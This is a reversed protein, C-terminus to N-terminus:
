KLKAGGRGHTLYIAVVTVSTSVVSLANSIVAQHAKIFEELDTFKSHHKGTTLNVDGKNTVMTYKHEEAMTKKSRNTKIPNNQVGSHRRLIGVSLGRDRQQLALHCEPASIVEGIKPLGSVAKFVEPM